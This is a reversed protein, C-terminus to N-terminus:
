ERRTCVVQGRYKVSVQSYKEWGVQPLARQYLAMLRHFKDDLNKWKAAGNAFLAAVVCAAAIITKKTM